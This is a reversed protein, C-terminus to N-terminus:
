RLHSSLGILRKKQIQIVKQIFGNRLRGGMVMKEGACVDM